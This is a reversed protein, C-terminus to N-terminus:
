VFNFLMVVWKYSIPSKIDFNLIKNDNKFSYFEGAMM